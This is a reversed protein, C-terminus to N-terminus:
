QKLDAALAAGQAAQLRENEMRVAKEVRSYSWRRVKDDYGMIAILWDKMAPMFSKSMSKEPWPQQGGHDSQSSQNPLSIQTQRLKAKPSQDKTSKTKVQDSRKASTPSKSAGQAGSTMDPQHEDLPSGASPRADDGRKCTKRTQAGEANVANVNSGSKSYIKKEGHVLRQRATPPAEAEDGDDHDEKKTKLARGRGGPEAKKGEHASLLGALMGRWEQCHSVWESICRQHLQHMDNVKAASRLSHADNAFRPMTSTSCDQLLYPPAPMLAKSEESPDNKRNGPTRGKTFAQIEKGDNFRLLSVRLVKARNDTCQSTARCWEYKSRLTKSNWAKRAEESSNWDKHVLLLTGYHCKWAISGTVNSAVIPVWM